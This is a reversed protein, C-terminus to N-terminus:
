WGKFKNWCGLRHCVPYYKHSYFEKSCVKCKLKYVPHWKNLQNVQANFLVYDTWLLWELFKNIKLV